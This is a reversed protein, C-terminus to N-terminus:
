IGQEEAVSGRPGAHPTSIVHERTSSSSVSEDEKTQVVGLVPSGLSKFFRGLCRVVSKMTCHKVSHPRQRMDGVLRFSNISAARHSAEFLSPKLRSLSQFSATSHQSYPQSQSCASLTGGFIGQVGVLLLNSSRADCGSCLCVGCMVCAHEDSKPPLAVLSSVEDRFAQESAEETQVQPPRPNFYCTGYINM